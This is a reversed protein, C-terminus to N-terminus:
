TLPLTTAYDGRSQAMQVAGRGGEVAGRLAVSRREEPDLLDRRREAQRGPRDAVVLLDSQELRGGPRLTGVAQEVGVVDLPEPEDLAQAVVRAEAQGLDALEELVLGGPGAVPGAEPARAVRALPARDHVVGEVPHVALDLRELLLLVAQGLHDCLGLAAALVEEGVDGLEVGATLRCGVLV